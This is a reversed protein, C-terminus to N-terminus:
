PETGSPNTQTTDRTTKYDITKLYMEIKIIHATQQDQAM